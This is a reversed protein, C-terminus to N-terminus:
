FRKKYLEIGFTASCTELMMIKFGGVLYNIGILNPKIKGSVEKM